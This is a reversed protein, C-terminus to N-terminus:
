VPKISISKLLHRVRLLDSFHRIYHDAIVGDEYNFAITNLGVAKAGDLESPKHGIFVAQSASVGLQQLAPKYIKPNPKRMGLESSSVISDWVDGFGGREFWGLKVHVPLATDTIIGLLYGEEKLSCLTEPVGEFFTINNDDADMMGIGRKILAPDTLGYLKLISGRYSDTTIEGNYAQQKLFEEKEPPVHKGALGQEKLFSQLNRGRDPRYYLIDGADFILARVEGEKRVPPIAAPELLSLLEGFDYIVADPEAGEDPEGHDFENIIQVILGFGAKRAGLIDRAIRDGVHACAGTPVNALRAAQHFIAPDPKRRGYECSLIIPDFYHSIGYKELNDPVLQRNCVNSILGIKYGQEKLLQLVSPVEPRMERLFFGNELAYM